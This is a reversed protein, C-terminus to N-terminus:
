QRVVQRCAPPKGPDRVGYVIWGGYTNAFSSLSKAASEHTPVQEKFDLNWGESATKLHALHEVAIEKFTCPFPSYVFRPLAMGCDVQLLEVGRRAADRCLAGASNWWRTM